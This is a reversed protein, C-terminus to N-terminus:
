TNSFNGQSTHFSLSARSLRCASLFCNPFHQFHLRLLALPRSKRATATIRFSYCQWRASDPSEVM